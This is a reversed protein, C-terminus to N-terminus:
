KWTAIRPFLNSFRVSVAGGYAKTSTRLCCLSVLHSIILNANSTSTWLRTLDYPVTAQHFLSVILESKEQLVCGWDDAMSQVFENRRPAKAVGRGHPRSENQPSQDSQSSQGSQGSSKKSKLLPLQRQKDVQQRLRGLQNEDFTMDQIEANMEVLRLRIWSATNHMITCYERTQNAFEQLNFNPSKMLIEMLDTRCLQESADFAAKSNGVLEIRKRFDYKLRDKAKPAESTTQQEHPFLNTSEQAELLTQEDYSVLVAADRFGLKLQFHCSGM